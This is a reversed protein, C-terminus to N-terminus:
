RNDYKVGLFAGLVFSLAFLGRYWRFKFSLKKGRLKNVSVVRLRSSQKVTQVRFHIDKQAYALSM